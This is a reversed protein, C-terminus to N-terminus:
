NKTGEKLMTQDTAAKSLEDTDKPDIAWFMAVLDARSTVEKLLIDGNELKVYNPNEDVLALFHEYAGDPAKTDIFFNEVKKVVELFEKSDADHMAQVDIEDRSKRINRKQTKAYRSASTAVSKVTKPVLHWITQESEPLGRDGELVYPTEVYVVSRAM